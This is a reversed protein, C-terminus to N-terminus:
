CRGSQICAVPWSVCGGRKGRGGEAGEGEGEHAARERVEPTMVVAARDGRETKLGCGLEDARSLTSDAMHWGGKNDRTFIPLLNHPQDDFMDPHDFVVHVGTHQLREEWCRCTHM